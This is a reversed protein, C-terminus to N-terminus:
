EVIVLESPGEALADRVDQPLGSDTILVDVEDARVGVFPARGEFKTHDAVVVVREACAALAGCLSASSEDATLQGVGPAFADAGLFAIDARFVRCAAIARPGIFDLNERRFVGGTLCLTVGDVLGLEEVPALASTLATLPAKDKLAAAVRWITTGSDLAVAMGPEVLAAAKRALREKVGRMRERKEQFTRAVLSSPERLRAGGFTRTLRRAEELAALDRRITAESVGLAAVLEAVPVEGREELLALISAQRPNHAAKKM